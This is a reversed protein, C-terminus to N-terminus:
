PTQETKELGQPDSRQAMMIDKDSINEIVTLQEIMEMKSYLEANTFFEEPLKAQDAHALFLWSSLGLFFVWKKSISM